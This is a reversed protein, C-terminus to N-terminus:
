ALLIAFYVCVCVCVCVRKKKLVTNLKTVINQYLLIKNRCIIM